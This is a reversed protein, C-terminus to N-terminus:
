APTPPGSKGLPSVDFSMLTHGEGALEATLSRERACQSPVLGTDAVVPIVKGPAVTAVMWDPAKRSRTPAILIVKVVQVADLVLTVQLPRYMRTFTLAATHSVLEVLGQTIVIVLLAIVIAVSTAAIPIVEMPARPGVAM